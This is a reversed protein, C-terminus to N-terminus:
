AYGEVVRQRSCCFQIPAVPKGALPGILDLSLKIETISGPELKIVWEFSEKGFLDYLADAYVTAWICIRGSSNSVGLHFSNEDYQDKWILAM